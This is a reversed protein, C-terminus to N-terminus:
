LCCPLVAANALCKHAQGPSMSVMPRRLPNAAATPRVQLEPDLEEFAPGGYARAESDAGAPLFEVTEVDVTETATCRFRLVKGGKEMEATFAIASGADEDEEEGQEEDDMGFMNGDM